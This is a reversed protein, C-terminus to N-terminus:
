IRQPTLRYGISRLIALISSFEPNGNSSLAKQVGRRSLGTEQAVQTVGKVQGLIRLSALLAGVDNDKAYEDFICEIYADIEEPHQQFYRAEVEDFTPYHRTM